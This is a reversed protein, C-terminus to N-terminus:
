KRKAQRHAKFLRAEGTVSGGPLMTAPSVGEPSETKGKVRGGAMFTVPKGRNLNAPSLDNKGSNNHQVQTGNRKGEEYVKTGQNVRGGKARPM